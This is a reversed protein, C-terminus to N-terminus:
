EKGENPLIKTDKKAMGALLKEMERAIQLDAPEDSPNISINQLASASANSLMGNDHQPPNIVGSTSVDLQGSSLSQAVSNANQMDSASTSHSLASVPTDLVMTKSRDASTRMVNSQRSIALMTKRASRADNVKEQPKLQANANAQQLSLVSTVGFPNESDDSTFLLEDHSVHLQGDAVQM